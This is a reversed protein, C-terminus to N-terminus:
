VGSEERALIRRKMEELVCSDHMYTRSGKIRRLPAGGKRAGTGCFSCLVVLSGLRTTAM